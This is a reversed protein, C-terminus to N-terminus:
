PKAGQRAAVRLLDAFVGAATVQPGAFTGQVILPNIGEVVLLLPGVHGTRGTDAVPNGVFKHM